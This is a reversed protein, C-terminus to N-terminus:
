QGGRFSPGDCGLRTTCVLLPVCENAVVVDAVIYCLVVSVLESSTDQVWLIALIVLLASCVEVSWLGVCSVLELNLVALRVICSVACDELLTSDVVPIAAECVLSEVCEVASGVGLNSSHVLLSAFDSENTLVVNRECHKVHNEVSDTINVVLVAVDRCLEM